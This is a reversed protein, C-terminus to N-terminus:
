VQRLGVIMMKDEVLSAKTPPTPNGTDIVAQIRDNTGDSLYSVGWCADTVVQWVPWVAWMNAM